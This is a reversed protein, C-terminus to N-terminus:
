ALNFIESALWSLHTLHISACTKRELIEIVNLWHFTPRLHVYYVDIVDM